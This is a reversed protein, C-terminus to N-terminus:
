PWRNRESAYARRAPPLIAIFGDQALFVGIKQFQNAVNVEVGQATFDYLIEFFKILVRVAAV